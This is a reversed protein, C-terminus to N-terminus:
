KQAMGCTYRTNPILNLSTSLVKNNVSGKPRPRVNPHNQSQNHCHQTVISMLLSLASCLSRPLGVSPTPPLGSQCQGFWDATSSPIATNNRSPLAQFHPQYPFISQINQVESFIPSIFFSNDIDHLLRYHFIIQFFYIPTGKHCLLNLIQHQWQLLEPQQQSVPNSGLSPVEVHQPCSCIYIYLIYM